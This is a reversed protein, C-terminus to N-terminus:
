RSLTYDALLSQQWYQNKPDNFFARFLELSEKRCVNPIITVTGEMERYLPALGTLQLSTGGGMVDEYGYVVTRIGNLLLAAYCMLCPELTSYVTVTGRDLEPHRAFLERLAVMEAHDLENAEERSHRRRGEAVIEGQAVLVCGVPFEGSALAEEALVLARRM